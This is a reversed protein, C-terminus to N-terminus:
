QYSVKKSGKKPMSEFLSPFPTGVLAGKHRSQITAFFFKCQLSSTFTYSRQSIRNDSTFRRKRNSYNTERQTKWSEVRQGEIRGAVVVGQLEAAGAPRQTGLAGRQFASTLIALLPLPGAQRWTSVVVLQCANRQQQQQQQQQLTGIHPRIGAGGGGGKVGDIPDFKLDGGGNLGARILFVEKKINSLDKSGEEVLM